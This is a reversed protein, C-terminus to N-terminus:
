RRDPRTSPHKRRQSVCNRLEKLWDARRRTCNLSAQLALIRYKVRLAEIRDDITVAEHKDRHLPDSHTTAAISTSMIDTITRQRARLRLCCDANAQIRM